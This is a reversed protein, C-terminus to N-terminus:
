VVSKRDGLRGGGGGSGGFGGLLQPGAVVGATSPGIASLSDLIGGRRADGVHRPPGGLIGPSLTGLARPVGPSALVPSLISDPSVSVAPPPASVQLPTSAQPQPQQQQQRHEAQQDLQQQQQDLQQNHAREQKNQLQLQRLRLKAAELDEELVEAAKEAAAKERVARSLKLEAGSAEERWRRADEEVSKAREDAEELAQVMRQLEARTRREVAENEEKMRRRERAAAEEAAPAAAAQVVAEEKDKEELSRKADSNVADPATHNPFAALDDSPRWRGKVSLLWAGGALAAGLLAALASWTACSQKACLECRAPASDCRSSGSPIDVSEPFIPPANRDQPTADHQAKGIEEKLGAIEERAKELEKKLSEARVAWVYSQEHVDETPVGGDDENSHLNVAFEPERHAVRREKREEFITKDRQAANTAAFSAGEALPNTSTEDKSFSSACNEVPESLSRNLAAMVSYEAYAMGDKSPKAKKEEFFPADQVYNCVGIFWRGPSLHESTVVVGHHDGQKKFQYYNAFNHEEELSYRLSPSAKVVLFLQSSSTNLDVVLNYGRATVNMFYNHCSGRSIKGTVSEGSTLSGLVLSKVSSLGDDDVSLVPGLFLGVIFLLLIQRSCMSGVM